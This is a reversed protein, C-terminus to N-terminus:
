AMAVPLPECNENASQNWREDSFEPWTEKDFAPAHDLQRRTMNLVYVEQENDYHLAKWPVAFRKESMGLFGSSHLVLYAVRGNFVDIEVEEIEGMAEDQRNLVKTGIISATTVALGSFTAPEIAPEIAPEVIESPPLSPDNM